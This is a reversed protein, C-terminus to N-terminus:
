GADAPAGTSAARSAARTAAVEDLAARIGGHLTDLLDIDFRQRTLDTLLEAHIGVPWRFRREPGFAAAWIAEAVPTLDPNAENAARSSQRARELGDWYPSAPTPLSVPVANDAIATDFGAPQVVAVRIGYPALELWLAQSVAELAWKTAGYIGSFPLNVLGNVSSVNV